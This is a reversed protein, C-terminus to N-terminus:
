ERVFRTRELENLFIETDREDVQIPKSLKWMVEFQTRLM